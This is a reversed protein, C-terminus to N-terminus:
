TNTKNCNYKMAIDLQITSLTDATITPSTSPAVEFQKKGINQQLQQTMQSHVHVHAPVHAPIHQHSGNSRSGQRSVQRSGQRSGYTGSHSQSQESTDNMVAKNIKNLPIIFLLLSVISVTLDFLPVYMLVSQHVVKDCTLFLIDDTIYARATFINTVIGIM